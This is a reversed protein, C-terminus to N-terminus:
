MLLQQTDEMKYSRGHQAMGCLCLIAHCRAAEEPSSILKIMRPLADLEVVELM